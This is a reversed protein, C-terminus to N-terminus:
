ERPRSTRGTGRMEQCGDAGGVFTHLKSTDPRYLFPFIYLVTCDLLTIVIVVGRRNTQDDYGAPTYFEKGTTRERFYSFNDAETTM